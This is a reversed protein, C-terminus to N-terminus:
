MVKASARAEAERYRGEFLLRQIAPIAERAEGNANDNPQGSWITEENLGIRETAPIGYVMAGLHGNGLPLADTWVQAPSKYWLKYQAASPLSSILIIILATLASISKKM